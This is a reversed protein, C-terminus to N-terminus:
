FSRRLESDLLGADAESILNARIAAEVAARVLLDKREPPPTKGASDVYPKLQEVIYNADFLFRKGEPVPNRYMRVVAKSSYSTITYSYVKRFGEGAPDDTGTAPLMTFRYAEDDLGAKGKVTELEFFEYDNELTLEACRYMWYNWVMQESTHGNGSFSVIYEGEGVYEDTYGGTMGAPGYPTVCAALLAAACLVFFFKLRGYM